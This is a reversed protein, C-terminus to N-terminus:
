MTDKNDKIDRSEIPNAKSSCLKNITKSTLESETFNINKKDVLLNNYFTKTPNNITCCETSSLNSISNIQKNNIPELSLGSLSNSDTSSRSNFIAQIPDYVKETKEDTKEDDAELTLLKKKTQYLNYHWGSKTRKKGGDKFIKAAEKGFLTQNFLPKRNEAWKNYALRLDTANIWGKNDIESESSNDKNSIDGEEFIFQEISHYGRIKALLRVETEPIIRVNVLYKDDLYYLFSYFHNAAEQTLHNNILNDFYSYDGVKAASNEFMAYRRDYAEIKVAKEGHQTAANINTYIPVSYEGIYRERVFEYTQTIMAKMKDWLTHFKSRNVTLEDAFLYILEKMWDNWSSDFVTFNPIRMAIRRGLVLNILFDELFINRGCGQLENTFILATGLKQWPYKLLRAYWSLAYMFIKGDNNCLIDLMHKLWMICKNVDVKDKPLLEAKFGPWRNFANENIINPNPNFECTKYIRMKSYNDEVFKSWKVTVKEDVWSMNFGKESGEKPVRRLKKTIYGFSFHCGKSDYEIMMKDESHKHFQRTKGEVVFVCVRRSDELIKDIMEQESAFYHGNYKLMFDHWFFKDSM